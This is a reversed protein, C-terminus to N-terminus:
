GPIRELYQCIAQLVAEGQDRHPSHRCDALKLLEVEAPVQEAIVEIQRLTAYEDDEGQIALVPVRIRPLYEEINWDRFAPSLWTDHWDHFVRSADRHYRGLKEPWDTNEWAQGALRIGALAEEEVWAHPAMVVLGGVQEPYAGAHILAISGGDSHGVLVPREIGLAALTAPLMELAEDHMYRPTRPIPAPDSAGYGQRSFVLTRCGTAQAVRQPFDRWFAICGLGEHLFVLTPRYIQHASILEVELKRGLVELLPM